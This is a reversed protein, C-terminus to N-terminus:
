VSAEFLSTAAASEIELKGVFATLHPPVDRGDLHGFGLECEKPFRGRWSIKAVFSM